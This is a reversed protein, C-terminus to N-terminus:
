TEFVGITYSPGSPGYQTYTYNGDCWIDIFLVRHRNNVVETPWDEFNDPLIRNWGIKSALFNKTEGVHNWADYTMKGALTSASTTWTNSTYSLYVYEFDSWRSFAKQASSESIGLSVVIALLIINKPKM